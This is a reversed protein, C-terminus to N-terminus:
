PGIPGGPFFKAVADTGNNMAIAFPACGATLLLRHKDINNLRHLAWLRDDGGKYPKTADFIAVGAQNVGKIKAKSNAKKNLSRKALRRWNRGHSRVCDNAYGRLCISAPCNRLRASGKRKPRM